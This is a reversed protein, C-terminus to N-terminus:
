RSPKAKRYSRCVAGTLLALAALGVLLGVASVGTSALSPPLQAGGEQAQQAPEQEKHPALLQTKGPESSAAPSTSTPQQDTTGSTELQHFKHHSEEKPSPSEPGSAGQTKGSPGEGKDAPGQLTKTESGQEPTQASPDSSPASPDPSPASPDPSPASPDPSPASPDPSPAPATAGESPAPDTGTEGPKGDQQCDEIAQDGVLFVLKQPQSAKQEGDLTRASYYAEFEYIGPATFVWHAHVHTPFDVPILYDGKRSDALLNVGTFPSEQYIAFNSGDPKHVPNLHLEVPSELRSYDIDQTNWGPWIIGPEQNQPLGYFSDGAKGLFDLEPATLPGQRLNRAQNGVAFVVEDLSRETAQRSIQRTEDKLFTKLGQEGLQAKIDVHGETLIYRGKYPEISCQPASAPTEPAPDAPAPDAPPAPDQPEVPDPEDLLTISGQAQYSKGQAYSDTVQISAAQAQMDPHPIIQAIVSEGDYFWSDQYVYEAIGNVFHGEFTSDYYQSDAEKFGGALFGRFNPDKAQVILKSYGERETPELTLTFDGSSPRYLEGTMTFNDPDRHEQPWSGEGESSDRSAEVGPAYDLPQSIWRAAQDHESSPTFVAQLQGPTSGLLEDWSARGQSVPLDTLFYGNNFLTLTGELSSNDAEFAIHTLNQDGSRQGERYPRISLRYDMDALKGEPAQQYRELTSLGQPIGDGPQPSRGGVQWIIKTPESQILQGELGRAVTRYTVEYRGATTFTTANHTHSGPRLLSSNLGPTKSSMMRRLASPDWQHHYRFLEMEGPGNVDMIDLAFTGDRFDEVPIDTEAGFGVWAPDHNGEPLGPAMYLTDGPKGLFSQEASEDVTFTYQSRGTMESWGKGLWIISEDASYPGEKDGQAPAENRLVFHNDIWATKPADIHARSTIIKGDDPGATAPLSGAVLSALVLSSLTLLRAKSLSKRPTHKKVIM